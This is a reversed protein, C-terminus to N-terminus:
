NTWILEISVLFTENGYRGLIVLLDAYLKLKFAFWLQTTFNLISFNSYRAM